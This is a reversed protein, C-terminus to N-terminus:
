SDIDSQCLSGCCCLRGEIKILIFITIKTKMTTTVAPAQKTTVQSPTLQNDANSTWCTNRMHRMACTDSPQLRKNNKALEGDRTKNSNEVKGDHSIWPMFIGLRGSTEQKSSMWTRPQTQQVQMAAILAEQSL